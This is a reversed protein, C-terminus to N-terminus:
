RVTQGGPCRGAAAAARQVYGPFDTKPLAPHGLNKEIQWVALPRIFQTSWGHGRSIERAVQAQDMAEPALFGHFKWGLYILAVAVIVVSIVSGRILPALNGQELSHIFGQVDSSSSSAAM